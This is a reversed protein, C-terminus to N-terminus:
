RKPKEYVYVFLDHVPLAEREIHIRKYNRRFAKLVDEPWYESRDKVTAELPKDLLLWKVSGDELAALIAARDIKGSDWLLSMLYSDNVLPTSGSRLAIEMWEFDAVIFPAPDPAIRDLVAPYIEPTGIPTRVLRAMSGVPPVTVLLALATVIVRMREAGGSLRRLIPMGHIGIVVAALAFFPLLYNINSGVKCSLLPDLVLHFLFGALYVCGLFFRAPRRAALILAVLIAAVSANGYCIYSINKFGYIPHAANTNAELAAFLWYGHSQWAAAAVLGLTLGAALAVFRAARGRGGTVLLSAAIPIVDLVVTQRTLTGLAIALAALAISRSALVYAALMFALALFDVRELPLWTLVPDSTAFLLAALLAADPAGGRRRVALGILGMSLMGALLSVLRGPTLSGAGGTLRSAGQVVWYYLPGYCSLTLPPATLWKESIPERSMRDVMAVIGGEGGDVRYRAIVHMNFQACLILLFVVIVTNPLLRMLALTM